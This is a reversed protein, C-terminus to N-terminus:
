PAESRGRGADGQAERERAKGMEIEESEGVAPDAGVVTREGGLTGAARRGAARRRHEAGRLVLGGLLGGLLLILLSALALVTWHSHIVDRWMEGISVYHCNPYPYAPYTCQAIQPEAGLTTAAIAENTQPLINSLATLFNSNSTSQIKSFHTTLGRLGATEDM